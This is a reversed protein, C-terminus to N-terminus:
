FKVGQLEQRFAPKRPYQQLLEGVLGAAIKKGGIKILLRLHSCVHKYHSRNSANAASSMIFHCFLEYVQEQYVPLLQRYFELVRRPEKQVYALLKDFEREEILAATYANAYYGSHLSLAQHIAPYVQGWEKPEYSTKLKQYYTFDGQIALERAIIRLKDIEDCLEYIAFLREKWQRVLGSFERDQREGELALEEAMRYQKTRMAEQLLMDRCRSFHRHHYLFESAAQEDDFKRILDYRLLVVAEKDYQSSLSVTDFFKELQVREQSSTVWGACIGLLDFRMDSWGDYRKAAAELLVKQFCSGMTNKDALENDIQHFASNVEDIV